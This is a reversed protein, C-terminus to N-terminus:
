PTPTVSAPAASMPPRTLIAGSTGAQLAVAGSPYVMPQYSGPQLHQYGYVSTTVTPDVITVIDYLGIGISVTICITTVFCIAMAYARTFTHEM